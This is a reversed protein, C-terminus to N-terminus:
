GLLAVLHGLDTRNACGLRHCMRYIHGEVTRASLVLADAIEKNSLGQAVFIGIEHERKSLPLSPDLERLAPTLAGCCGGLQRARTAAAAKSGCDSHANFARAAHAAADAAALRDGIEALDHSVGLLGHGDNGYLARSWRTVIGVRPSTVVKCLEELRGHYDRGSGFQILTQLCLVERAIQGHFCAFEAAEEALAIAHDSDGAAATGWATALLRAPELFVFAPNRSRDMAEVAAAAADGDGTRGVATAHAIHLWYDVCLFPLYGPLSVLEASSIAPGLDAIATTLDGSELASVGNVGTAITRLARPVDAWQRTVRRALDLADTVRGNTALVDIHMLLLAVAEFVMTPSDPGLLLADEPKSTARDPEGRDGFALTTAFNLNTRSRSGLQTCDIGELLALVESPRASFALQLARFALLDHTAPAPADALARIMASSQEPRGKGFLTNAARLMTVAIGVPDSTDPVAGVDLFRDVDDARGLLSLTRAHLKRNDMGAGAHIGAGSLQQGLATGLRRIAAAAGRHFVEADPSLDSESWMMALRLPEPPGIACAPDAMATAVRGRLRRARARGMRARRTEGFLPHAVRVLDGGVAQSIEILGHHEAGEIAAPDALAYLYEIELPEAVAVLDLVEVVPEPAAVTQVDVLDVLSPSVTFSGTWTWTGSSGHVLRGARREQRVLQNLYLFNGQSLEFLCRLATSDVPAGLASELVAASEERSLPRLDLRRLFGDKWLELLTSPMPAGNRVTCVVSTEGTRILRHLVFASLEDLVHADDVLLLVHTDAPAATIAAIVSSVVTLPRDELGNAWQAFAGLPINQGAKTGQISHVAWEGQGAIEAAERLLRTKGAGASGAILLGAVGLNGRLFGALQEVEVERGALPWDTVYSSTM